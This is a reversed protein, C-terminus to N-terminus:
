TSQVAKQRYGSPGREVNKGCSFPILPRTFGTDVVSIPHADMLPMFSNTQSVNHILDMWYGKSMRKFEWQDVRYLAEIYAQRIMFPTLDSYDDVLLVPLRYLTRDLGFGRELVALTGSALTEWLRYTDAGLGPMCLSAYSAINKYIYQHLSVNEEIGTQKVGKLRKHNNTGNLSHETRSNMRPLICERIAPRFAYNSGKMNLLMDPDKKINLDAAKKMAKWLIPVKHHQLGLPASIVKPHTFNHHSNVVLMLLNEDELFDNMLDHGYRFRSDKPDMGGYQGFSMGWTVTRNLFYTSLWGWNEDFLGIAVVKRPFRYPKGKQSLSLVEHPNLTEWSEPYGKYNPRPFFRKGLLIIPARNSVPSSENQSHKQDHLVLSELGKFYGSNKSYHADAIKHIWRFGKDVSFLDDMTVLDTLIKRLLIQDGKSAQVKAIEWKSTNTPESFGAFYSKSPMPINNWEKTPYQKGNNDRHPRHDADSQSRNREDTETLVRKSSLSRLRVASRDKIAKIFDANTAECFLMAILAALLVRSQFIKKVFTLLSM